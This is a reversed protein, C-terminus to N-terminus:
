TTRLGSFSAATRARSAPYFPLTPSPFLYESELDRGEKKYTQCGGRELANEPRMDPRTM